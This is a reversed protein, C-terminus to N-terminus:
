ASDFFFFLFAPGPLLAPPFFAAAVLPAALVARFAAVVRVARFFVAARAAAVRARRLRGAGCGGEVIPFAVAVTRPAIAPTTAATLSLSGHVSEGGSAMSM